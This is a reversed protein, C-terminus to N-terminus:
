NYGELRTDHCKGKIGCYFACFYVKQQNVRLLFIIEAFSGMLMIETSEGGNAVTGDTGYIGLFPKWMVQEKREEHRLEATKRRM